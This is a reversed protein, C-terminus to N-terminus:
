KPRGAVSHVHVSELLGIAMLFVVLSSSGFSVFPLPLGTIPMIGITMGINVFVQFVIVGAVGAAILTGYLDRSMRAIRFARWVIVAFLGILLAAGLFGLEEGIVAFIFDTHREPLFNLNHQTGQLYGKGSFMGSGVAIKSQILQYGDGLADKEPDLFVELRALQWDKLLHVGFVSPLVRLALVGAAAAAGALIGLHTLRIGWVVLMVVLISVLVLSTGLDPQLFILVGPIAVYVVCLIVFRFRHRLEAGEVLVAGLSVILMFKVLEATQLRFSRVGLWRNAGVTEEGQGVLLTLVLLLLGAGYIYVQWRAFWKYNAISLTILFVSGLALGIAQSQVYWFPTSLTPDEHTASYLMFLGYVVLCLTAALLIWDMSKLYAGLSFGLPQRRERAPQLVRTPQEM